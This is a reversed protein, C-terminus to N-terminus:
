SNQQSTSVLKISYNIAHQMRDGHAVACINMVKVESTCRKLKSLNM